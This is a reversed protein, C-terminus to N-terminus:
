GVSSYDSRCNAGAREILFGCCVFGLGLKQMAGTKNKQKNKLSKLTILDLHGM